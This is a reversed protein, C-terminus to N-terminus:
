HNAIKSIKLLINKMAYFEHRPWTQLDSENRIFFNVYNGEIKLEILFPFNNHFVYEENPNYTLSEQSFQQEKVIRIFRKYKSIPQIDISKEVITFLSDNEILLCKKSCIYVESSDTYIRVVKFGKLAGHVYGANDNLAFLPFTYRVIFPESSNFLPKEALAFLIYSYEMLKHHHYDNKVEKTQKSFLPITDDVLLSIYNEQFVHGDGKIVQQKDIDVWLASDSNASCFHLLPQEGDPYDVHGEMSSVSGLKSVFLTFDKVRQFGSLYAHLRYTYFSTTDCDNAYRIFFKSQGVSLISLCLFFFILLVQRM